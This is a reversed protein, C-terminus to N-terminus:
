IEQSLVKPDIPKGLDQTLFGDDGKSPDNFKLAGLEKGEMLDQIDQQLNQREMPHGRFVIKGNTDVLLCHPVGKVGYTENFSSEGKWYHEINTLNASKIHKELAEKTKDISVAIM